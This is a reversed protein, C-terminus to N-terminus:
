DLYNAEFFTSYGEISKDKLIQRYNNQTIPYMEYTMGDPIFDGGAAKAADYYVMAKDKNNFKRIVMIPRNTDTGLYINSIRLKDLKNNLRNFGALSSKADNVKVNGKNTIVILMYHLKDHEVIYKKAAEAEDAASVSTPKGGRGELFRLIEKARTQEPTGPHKAIVDKLEIIYADKGSISGTCIASLLAFRAKM